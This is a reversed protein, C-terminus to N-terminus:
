EAGEGANKGEASPEPSLLAVIEKNTAGEPIAIGKEEAHALLQAKNMKAVETVVAEKKSAKGGVEARDIEFYELGLEKCHTALQGKSTANNLFIQGDECALLTNEEKLKEFHPAAKAVLEERKFKEM